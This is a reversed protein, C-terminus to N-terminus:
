AFGLTEDDGDDDESADSAFALTAEHMPHTMASNDSDHDRGTSVEREDLTTSVFLGMECDRVPTKSSADGSKVASVAVVGVKPIWREFLAVALGEPVFWRQSDEDWKAGLSWVM